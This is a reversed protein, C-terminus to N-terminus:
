DKEKPLPDVKTSDDSHLAGKIGYIMTGGIFGLCLVLGFTTIWWLAMLVGEKILIYALPSYKQIFLQKKFYKDLSKKLLSTLPYGLLAIM